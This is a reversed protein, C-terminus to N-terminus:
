NFVFSLLAAVIFLSIVPVKQTDVVVAFNSTMLEGEPHNCLHQSCFCLNVEIEVQFTIINIRLIQLVFTFYVYRFEGNMETKSVSKKCTGIVDTNM